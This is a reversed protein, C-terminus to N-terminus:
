DEEEEEEGLDPQGFKLVNAMRRLREAEALQKKFLAKAEAEILEAQRNLKEFEVNVADSAKAENIALDILRQTDSQLYSSMEEQPNEKCTLPQPEGGVSYGISYPGPWQEPRSATGPVEVKEGTWRYRAFGDPGVAIEPNKLVVEAPSHMYLLVPVLGFRMGM